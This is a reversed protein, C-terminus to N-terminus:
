TKNIDNSSMQTEKVDAKLRKTLDIQQQLLYINETKRKQREVDRWVSERLIYRLYIFNSHILCSPFFFMKIGIMSSNSVFM